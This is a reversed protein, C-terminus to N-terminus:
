KLIRELVDWVNYAKLKQPASGQSQPGMGGGIPPMGPGGGIPPAGMPGGPPSGMPMGMGGMGGGVPNLPDAASPPPSTPSIPSPPMAGPTSIGGDENIRTDIFQFFTEMDINISGIKCVAEFFIYDPPPKFHRPKEVFLL